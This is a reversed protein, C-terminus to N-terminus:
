ELSLIGGDLTYTAFPLGVSRALEFTEKMKARMDDPKHADSNTVVKVPYESALQWFEFLPYSSCRGQSTMQKSKRLGNSNIELAVGESVACEIIARSCAKTEDDWGYYYYAFVDPHAGFLFLRSQLGQCYLDTYVHLDEKTLPHAFVQQEVGLEFSLDHVSVILYSVREQLEQYYSKYQPLYDCEYGTLIVLDDCARRAEQIDAEYSSMQGYSMRSTSWRNDPVPCHESFGLLQIGKRRAEVVYESIEGTGHGCYFSHTHLNTVEQTFSKSNM